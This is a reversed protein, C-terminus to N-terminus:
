VLRSKVHRSITVQRESSLVSFKFILLYNIRHVTLKGLPVPWLRYNIGQSLMM